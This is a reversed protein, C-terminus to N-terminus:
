TILGSRISFLKISCTLLIYHCSVFPFKVYRANPFLNAEYMSGIRHLDNQGSNLQEEMKQKTDPATNPSLWM